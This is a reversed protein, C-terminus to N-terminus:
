KGPDTLRNGLYADGMLTGVKGVEDLYRMEAWYHSLLTLYLSDLLGWRHEM